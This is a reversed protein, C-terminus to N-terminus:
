FHIVIGRSVANDSGILFNCGKPLIRYTLTKNNGHAELISVIQRFTLVNNDLILQQNQEISEIQSKLVLPFPLVSEILKNEQDSVLVISKVDRKEVSPQLNLLVLGKVGLSILSEVLISKNFHKKYFIQMAGNFRKAYDQNRCTSEGKYHIVTTAGFYYNQFGAQITKYSLDIDEAYMFYDEDFGNVTNYVDRKMVMFAGVLISVPGIDNEELHNAYYSGTKGLIKKLAVKPTPVHRKSEPLFAGTGDILKCGVIGLNAQKDAFYLVSLFTDETVVTDPNLVCVYEGKAESVGINNGKSFGFNTTNEILKVKPFRSKVMQCSDDSSQNDVVIIEADITSIAEQVSKLCLELFHRVNYNLIVISLKM